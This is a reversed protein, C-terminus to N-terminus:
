RVRGADFELSAVKRSEEPWAGNLFTEIAGLVLEPAEIWPAHGADVVSLLRASPLMLAWERGGGYPASRDKTGHLTLIPAQAQAVEQATLELGQISPMLSELWYKMFGRENPLHCRGWRIKEADAPSTVYIARLVSWFKRCFAEPDTSQREKELQALATCVDRLVGDAHALHAPYQTGHRPQLPSIQVVREVHAAYKMAYVAVTLGLYSHGIVAARATGFHRRVTDLDDVDNHIGRALQAGDSVHDSRGRNRVDYFVLTRGTALREFDERLHFGNPILVLQPGNGLAEFFLRVGDQTTVSGERAPM